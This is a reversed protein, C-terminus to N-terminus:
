WGDLGDGAAVADLLNGSEVIIGAATLWKRWCRVAYALCGDGFSVRYGNLIAERSSSNIEVEIHQQQM